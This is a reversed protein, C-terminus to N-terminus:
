LGVYRTQHLCLNSNSKRRYWPQHQRVVLRNQIRRKPVWLCSECMAKFITTRERLNLLVAQVM